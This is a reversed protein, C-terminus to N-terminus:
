PIVATVGAYSSVGMGRWARRSGHDQRYAVRSQRQEVGAHTLAIGSQRTATGIGENRERPDQVLQQAEAIIKAAQRPEAHSVFTREDWWMLQTQYREDPYPTPAIPAVVGGSSRWRNLVHDAATAMCFQVGLLAMMHVFGRALASSLLDKREADPSVWGSKLEIVGCPVRDNIMKRVDRLGPQGAWEVLAHSDEACKLPGIARVGAVMRGVHDLAGFFMATDAGSRLADVDLACGVGYRQYSRQAEPLFQEWLQPDISPRSAVLTCRTESDWWSVGHTLAVDTHDVDIQCLTTM